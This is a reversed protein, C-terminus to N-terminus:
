ANFDGRVVSRATVTMRAQEQKAREDFEERTACELWWSRSPQPIVKERAPRCMGASPKRWGKGKSNQAINSM